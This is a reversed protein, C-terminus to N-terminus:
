FLNGTYSVFNLVRNVRLKLAERPETVCIREIFDKASGLV